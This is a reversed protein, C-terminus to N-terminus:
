NSTQNGQEDNAVKPRRGKKQKTPPVVTEVQEVPMENNDVVAAEVVPQPNRAERVRRFYETAHEPCCAVDQWRNVGRWETKCYPYEKNCIKCIRTSKAM